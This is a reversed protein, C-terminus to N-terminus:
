ILFNLFFRFFNQNFRGPLLPDEGNMKVHRKYGNYAQKLGGSDAINEGITLAGNVSMNVEQVYYGNYQDILCKSM